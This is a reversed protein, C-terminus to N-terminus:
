DFPCGITRVNDAVIADKHARRKAIAARPDDALCCTGQLLHIRELYVAIDKPRGDDDITARSVAHEDPKLRLVPRRFLLQAAFASVNNQRWHSGSRKFIMGAKLPM